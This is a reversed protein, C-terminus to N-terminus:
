FYSMFNVHKNFIDVKKNLINILTTISQKEIQTFKEISNLYIQLMKTRMKTIDDTKNIKYGSNKVRSIIDLKQFQNIYPYKKRFIDKESNISLFVINNEKIIETQTNFHEHNKIFYM